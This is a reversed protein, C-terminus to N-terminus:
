RLVCYLVSDRRTGVRREESRLLVGPLHANATRHADRGIVHGADGANFEPAADRRDVRGHAFGSAVTLYLRREGIRVARQTGAHEDLRLERRSRATRDDCQRSGRDAVRRVTIRYEDDGVKFIWVATRISAHALLEDLEAAATAILHRNDGAHM